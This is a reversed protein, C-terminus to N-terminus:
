RSQMIHRTKEFDSLEALGHATKDGFHIQQKTALEALHLGVPGMHTTTPTCKALISDGRERSVMEM